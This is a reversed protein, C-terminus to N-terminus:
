SAQSVFKTDLYGKIAELSGESGVTSDRTGGFPVEHLGLGHNISVMGCQLEARTTAM